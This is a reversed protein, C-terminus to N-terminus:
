ILLFLAISIAHHAVARQHCGDANAGSVSKIGAGQISFGLYKKM